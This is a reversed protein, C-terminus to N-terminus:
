GPLRGFRLPSLGALAAPPAEGLVAPALAEGTSPALTVGLMAHGTAVFLGPRAEGAIPVGDATLPRLGAWEARGEAPRWGPVYATAGAVVADVRRRNLALDIGTLELTGAVRVQDGGFPSAGVKAETLYLPHRLAPEPGPATVSYGKAAELPVDIGAGRLLGRSWVGAAVVVRDADQAGAATQVRWGDGLPRVAEVAVGEEIAAGRAVLDDHLGASLTEPRVHRERGALLGAAAAGGAVAPELAVLAARDLPEVAGDFGLRALEAYADLWAQLAREDRVLYLLGDEHMEFAVGEDRLLDFHAPADRALALTAATGARHAGPRCSRAFRLSWRLFALDARPRVLLPSAPDLMWRATQRMVGPAPVPASLGPTVWGANGASAGAGCRDRELVTVRAGRRALSWATALGIVGGGIVIVQM